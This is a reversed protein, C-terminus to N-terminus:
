LDLRSKIIFWLFQRYVRRELSSTFFRKRGNLLEMREARFGAATLSIDCLTSIKEATDAQLARLVCAPALTRSAFVNAQQERPDDDPQPERNVQTFSDPKLHGLLIHGVEHMITFRVRGRNMDGRYFIYYRGNQLKTFGDSRCCQAELGFYQILEWGEEYSCLKFGYTRCVETASVPLAHIHCRLLCDWAIDRAAQYEKYNLVFM